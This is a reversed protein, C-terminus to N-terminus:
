MNLQLGVEGVEVHQAYWLAVVALTSPPYQLCLTTVQGARNLWPLAQDISNLKYASNYKLAYSYPDGIRFDFALCYLLAREAMLVKEQLIPM